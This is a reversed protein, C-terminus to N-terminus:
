FMRLSLLQTMRLNFVFVQIFVENEVLVVCRKVGSSLVWLWMNEHTIKWTSVNATAYIVCKKFNRFFLFHTKFGQNHWVQNKFVIKIRYSEPMNLYWCKGAHWYKLFYLWRQLEELKVPAELVWPFAPKKLQKVYLYLIYGLSALSDKYFYFETGDLSRGSQLSHVLYNQCKGIHTALMCCIGALGFM